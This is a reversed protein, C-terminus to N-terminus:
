VKLGFIKSRTLLNLKIISIKSAQKLICSTILFNVELVLSLLKEAIILFVDSLNNTEGRQAYYIAKLRVINQM